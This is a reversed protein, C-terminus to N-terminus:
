NDLGLWDLMQDTSPNGFFLDVGVGVPDNYLRSSEDVGSTGAFDQAWDDFTHWGTDADYVPVHRVVWAFADKGTEAYINELQYEAQSESMMGRSVQSQVYLTQSIHEDSVNENRYAVGELLWVSRNHDYVMFHDFTHVSRYCNERNRYIVDASVVAFDRSGGILSVEDTTVSCIQMDEYGYVYDSYSSDHAREKFSPTVRNWADGWMHNSIYYWYNEVAIEADTKQSASSGAQICVPVFIVLVVLSIVLIQLKKM